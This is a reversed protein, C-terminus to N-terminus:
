DRRLALPNGHNGAVAHALSEARQEVPGEQVNFQVTITKRGPL